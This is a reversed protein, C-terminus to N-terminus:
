EDNEELEDLIPLLQRLATITYDPQVDHWPRELHAPSMLVSVLGAENAGAIDNEPRDGVFVATAPEAGLMQLVREYIAPHPKMYGVDGSTVRADFYSFIQYAVLEKDRMWMPMMSNTILGIKYARERLQELVAITDEYLVVEPLPGWGFARLAEDLNVATLDVGMEQLIGRLTRKFNVGAWTKKAEVWAAVIGERYHTFFTEEDPLDAGQGQLYALLRRVHPRTLTGLGDPQGSWDVLTDDMDFIV